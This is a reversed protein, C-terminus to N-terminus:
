LLDKNVLYSIVMDIDCHYQVDRDFGSAGLLRVIQDRTRPPADMHAYFIEDYITYSPDCLNANLRKFNPLAYQEDRSLIRITTNATLIAQRLAFREGLFRSAECVIRDLSKGDYHGNKAKEITNVFLQKTPRPIMLPIQQMRLTFVLKIADLGILHGRRFSPISEINPVIHQEVAKAKYIEDSFHM